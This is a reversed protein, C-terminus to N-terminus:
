EPSSEKVRLSCIARFRSLPEDRLADRSLSTQCVQCVTWPEFDFRDCLGVNISQTSQLNSLLDCATAHNM